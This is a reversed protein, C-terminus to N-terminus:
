FDPPRVMRRVTEERNSTSVAWGLWLLASAARSLAADCGRREGRSLVGSCCALRLLDSCDSPCDLPRLFSFGLLLAVVVTGLLSVASDCALDSDAVM